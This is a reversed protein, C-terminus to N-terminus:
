INLPHESNFVNIAPWSYSVLTVANFPKFTSISKLSQVLNFSWLIVAIDLPRALKGDSLLFVIVTEFVFSFLLVTLIAINFALM